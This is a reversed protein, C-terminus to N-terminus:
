YLVCCNSLFINIFGRKTKLNTLTSSKSYINQFSIIICMDYILYISKSFIKVVFCNRALVHGHQLNKRPFIANCDNQGIKYVQPM